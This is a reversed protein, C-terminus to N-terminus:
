NRGFTRQWFGKREPAAEKASEHREATEAKVAEHHASASEHAMAAREKGKDGHMKAKSKGEASKKAARERGAEGKMKAKDGGKRARMEAECVAETKGGNVCETMRAEKKEKWEAKQEATMNKFDKKAMEAMSATAFMVGFAAAIIMLKKM